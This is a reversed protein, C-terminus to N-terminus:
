NSASPRAAPLAPLHANRRGPRPPQLARAGQIAAIPLVGGALAILGDGLSFASGGLAARLPPFLVAGLGLLASIGVGLALVLNRKVGTDRVPRESSRALLVHLLQALSLSAFTMTGATAGLGHRRLGLGYVGLTSASIVTSEGAIQKWLRRPILPERPDRPPRTMLDSPAPEVALGVAPGVDSILNIWLLQLPTLPSPFGAAVAGLVTWVETANTALLYHLVRRVNWRVLRGEEVADEIHSFDDTSLVVDALERALETGREGMAVGVDAARLAPADNVGDGTMAVIDGNAQLARVVALKMEPPVRAFIGVNQVAGRLSGPPLSVLSEADLVELSGRRSLQLERAVAIATGAQDGTILVTRIGARHLAAITRPVAARVPDALGILGRWTFGRSLDRESYGPRLRREALGLVRLGRRSMVDNQRLFSQKSDGDLPREEAGARNCLDLIEEPSGKAFAQLGGDTRHVTIMYRRGNGRDRRDIRPSVEALRWPDLNAKAAAVLLAGETASGSVPVVTGDVRDVEADNCLVGVRLAPLLGPIEAPDVARGDVYFEGTTSLAQGGIKVVNGPVACERAAMRNETITGTKDACVVTVSGLSEAASLTRILVGKKRMRGSGLALVTTAIASLGEPIAAVGLSVATALAPLLRYGRMLSLGIVGGTLGVTLVALERGLRDLDRELPAPPAKAQAALLRLGGVATNAGTAVVVAEGRGAVVTTGRYVMCLRDALPSRAAVPATDKDVAHPEGTLASEEVQLRHAFTLRADAPVPDGPLLAITDGPVLDAADVVDVQSERRVRGQIAFSHRLAAVARAGSRETTTGIVANALLVTGILAADAMGGTAVSLVAGAALLASPANVFQEAFLRLLSPSSPEPLKNPGFQRKRSEVAPAGLGQEPNVGLRVAVASADMAHWHLGTTPTGVGSTYDTGEGGGRGGRRAPRTTTSGRPSSGDDDAPAERHPISGNDAPADRAPGDGLIRGGAAILVDEPIARPDYLILANGTTASARVSTVGPLSGLLNAM